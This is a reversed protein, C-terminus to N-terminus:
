QASCKGNFYDWVDCTKGNKFACTGQEKDTNSSGTVTYNGATIGCYRAADTVWGTVKLGGVPCDGRMLAWEECQRNEEFVCVGYEGGDGRKEIVVKGGQKVCNSSAPNTMNAFGATAAPTTFTLTYSWVKGDNVVSYVGNAGAYKGTGGVIARHVPTSMAIEQGTKPDAFVLGMSILTSGDDDFSFITTATQNTFKEDPEDAPDTTVGAMDLQGARKAGSEDFLVASAAFRDGVSDGPAGVDERQMDKPAVAKSTLKLTYQKAGGDQALAPAVSMVALAVVLLVAVRCFLKLM